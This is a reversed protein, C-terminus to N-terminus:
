KAPAHTAVAPTLLRHYLRKASVDGKQLRRIPVTSGLRPPPSDKHILDGQQISRAPTSEMGGRSPVFITIRLHIVRVRPANSKPDTVAASPLPLPRLGALVFAVPASGSALSALTSCKSAAVTSFAKAVPFGKSSSLPPRLKLTIPRRRSLGPTTSTWLVSVSM